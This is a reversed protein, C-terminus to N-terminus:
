KWRKSITDRNDYKDNKHPQKKLSMNEHVMEQDSLRITEKSNYSGVLKRYVKKM